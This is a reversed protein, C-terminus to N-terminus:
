RLSPPLSPPLATLTNDVLKEQWDIVVVFCCLRVKVSSEERKGDFTFVVLCNSM